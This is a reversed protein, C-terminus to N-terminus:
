LFPVTRVVQGQYSGPPVWLLQGASSVDVRRYLQMYENGHTSTSDSTPVIAIRDPQKQGDAYGLEWPCWRSTMSNATALFLFWDCVKIRHQIRSATERNPDPPMSADKWDIYLEVGQEALLAQLGEALNADRHSHCLFAVKQLGARVQAKLLPRRQSARLLESQAIAM